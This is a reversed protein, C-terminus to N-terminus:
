RPGGSRPTKTPRLLPITSEGLGFSALWRSFRSRESPLEPSTADAEATAAASPLSEGQHVPNGSSVSHTMRVLEALTQVLVLPELVSLNL